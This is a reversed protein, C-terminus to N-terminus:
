VETVYTIARRMQASDVLTTDISSVDGTEGAENLVNLADKYKKGKLKSIKRLITRRKNRPWGNRPDVFWRKAANSGQQGAVKLYRQMALTNGDLEADAAKGLTETILEKNDEAEIAPEIVPRKPIHMVESGNTHIFLLAANTIPGDKRTTEAEPIGVYVKANSLTGIAERVFKLGDGSESLTITPEM